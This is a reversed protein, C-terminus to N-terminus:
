LCRELLRFITIARLKDSDDAEPPTGNRPQGTFQFAIYVNKESCFWPADEQGIKTLDDYVGKSSDKTEVCCMHRFGDNQVGLYEEVEKRTMGPNLVESYARLASQYGAERKQQARKALSHRVVVSLTVALLLAILLLWRRM